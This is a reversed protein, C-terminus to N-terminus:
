YTSYAIYTIIRPKCLTELPHVATSNM